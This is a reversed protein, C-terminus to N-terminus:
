AASFQAEQTHDHLCARMSRAESSVIAAGPLRNEHYHGKPGFSDTASHHAHFVPIAPNKRCDPFPLTAAARGMDLSSNPWHGMM